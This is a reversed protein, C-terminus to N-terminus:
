NKIKSSCCQLARDLVVQLTQLSYQELNAPASSRRFYTSWRKRLDESIRVKHYTSWMRDTCASTMPQGEAPVCSEIRSLIESAIKYNIDGNLERFHKVLQFVSAGRSTSKLVKDDSM